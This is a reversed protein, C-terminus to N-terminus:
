KNALANIDQEPRRQFLPTLQCQHSHLPQHSQPTSTPPNGLVIFHGSLVWRHGVFFLLRYEGPKWENAELELKAVGYGGSGGQWRGTNAHLLEEGRYWLETWQVGVDMMNYSYTGYITKLPNEFEKAKKIPQLADDIEESFVITSLAFNDGPTVISEFEAALNGPISPTNTM